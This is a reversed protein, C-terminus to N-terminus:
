VATCGEGKRTCEGIPQFQCTSHQKGLERHRRGAYIREHIVIPQFDPQTLLAGLRQEVIEARSSCPMHHFFALVIILLIGADNDVDPADVDLYGAGSAERALM